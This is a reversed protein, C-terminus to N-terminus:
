KGVAKPQPRLVIINVRTIAGQWSRAPGAHASALTFLIAVAVLKIRKMLAVRLLDCVEGVTLTKGALERELRADLDAKVPKQRRRAKKDTQAKSM